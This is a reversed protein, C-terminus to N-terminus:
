LLSQVRFARPGEWLGPWAFRQQASEGAGPKMDNAPSAATTPPHSVSNPGCTARSMQKGKQQDHTKKTNLQMASKEVMLYFVDLTFSKM